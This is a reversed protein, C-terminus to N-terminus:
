PNPNPNPNPNPDPNPHTPDRVALDFPEEVDLLQRPWPPLTVPSASVNERARCAARASPLYAAARPVRRRRASRAPVGGKGRCAKGRCAM